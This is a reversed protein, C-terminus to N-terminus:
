AIGANAFVRHRSEVSQRRSLALSLNGVGFLLFGFSQALDREGGFGVRSFAGLVIVVVGCGM